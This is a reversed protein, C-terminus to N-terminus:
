HRLALEAATNGSRIAGEITAPLGTDTWDGALYLNGFATGAGPRRANEEPTAAFTARRERVVQWPPLEPPLEAVHAVEQWITAALEERSLDLLRDAGSTTTSLRGPYAFLWDTTANLLGIMPPLHAPADLRFHANVIARSTTPTTLDPVLSGAVVPPVAVIVRDGLTLTITEDGFDLSAAKGGAFTIARLRKGFRVPVNRTELYTLAPEILAHSLGDRAIRPRCAKGGLMVSERMIRAALTTSGEAPDCNLAALMLPHLFRDYAPGSCDIVQGMPKGTPILLKGMAIFEGLRTGPPRADADFLWFPIVGDNIRLMWRENTALDVFAFEAADPGTLRDAAGIAELYALAAHNGSLVLHNGNDIVMGLQPDHYSRCRGGAQGAAEHVVVREGRETLRVAAALGSLGAGIIHTTRSM